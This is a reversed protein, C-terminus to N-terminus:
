YGNEIAAIIYKCTIDPLAGEVGYGTSINIKKDEKSILLVVGNNFEKGGVGWARGLQVAYDAVDYGDLNPVIVVAIQTSSSDDFQVLKNELAQQQDPTLVNAFDNVLKQKGTPPKLLAKADFATQSIAGAANVTFTGTTVPSGNVLLWGEYKFNPGLDELGTINLNIKQTTVESKKCSIFVIAALLIASWIKAHKM